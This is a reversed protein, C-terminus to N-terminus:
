KRYVGGTLARDHTWGKCDRRVTSVYFSSSGRAVVMAQNEELVIERGLPDFPVKVKAPGFIPYFGPHLELNPNNYHRGVVDVMERYDENRYPVQNNM